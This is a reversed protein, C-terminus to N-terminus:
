ASKALIVDTSCHPCPIKEGLAHSPFEINGGCSSCSMKINDARKLTITARCHPCPITEGLLNTAFEVHGGCATCSIKLSRVLVAAGTKAPGSNAVATQVPPSEVKVRKALWPQVLAAYSGLALGFPLFQLIYGTAGYYLRLPDTLSGICTGQPSCHQWALGIWFVVYNTGLWALWGTQLGIRRGFLCILAVVLEFGGVMLVTVRLPIGLMPDPLALVQANGAAIVFRTLAAALLIVGVTPIFYRIWKM